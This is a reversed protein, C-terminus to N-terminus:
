EGGLQRRIQGSLDSNKGDSKLRVSLKGIETKGSAFHAAQRGVADAIERGISGARQGAQQPTVGRLRVSVKDIHIGGTNM